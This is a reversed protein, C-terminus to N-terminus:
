VICGCSQGNATFAYKKTNYGAIVPGGGKSKLGVDVGGGSTVAVGGKGLSTQMVENRSPDVYMMERAGYDIVAYGPEENEDFRAREGDSSIVSTSGKGDLITIQVDAFVPSALFISIGITLFRKM